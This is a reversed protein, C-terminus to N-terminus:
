LIKRLYNEVKDLSASKYIERENYYLTFEGAAMVIKYIGDEKNLSMIVSTFDNIIVDEIRKVGADRAIRSVRMDALTDYIKDNELAKNVSVRYRKTLATFEKKTMGNYNM